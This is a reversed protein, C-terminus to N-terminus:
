WGRIGEGDVERQSLCVIRFCLKKEGSKVVDYEAAASCYSSCSYFHFIHLHIETLLSLSVSELDVRAFHPFIIAIWVMRGGTQLLLIINQSNPNAPLPTTLIHLGSRCLDFAITERRTQSLMMNKAFCQVPAMKVSVKMNLAWDGSFDALALMILNGGRWLISSSSLDMFDSIISTACKLLVVTMEQPHPQTIVNKAVVVVVMVPINRSFMDTPRGKAVQILM